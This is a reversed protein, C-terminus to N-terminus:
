EVGHDPRFAESQVHPVSRVEAVLLRECECSPKACWSPPARSYRSGVQPGTARTPHSQGRRGDLLARLRRGMRSSNVTQCRAMTSITDFKTKAGTVATSSV